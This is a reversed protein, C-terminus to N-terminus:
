APGSAKGSPPKRLGDLLHLLALVPHSLLLRRGSYRMVARIQERKGPAYCHIPCKGCTPKRDQFPCHHLRKRAYALLQRCDECLEPASNHHDRCYRRILAEVTRAERQMRRSTFVDPM